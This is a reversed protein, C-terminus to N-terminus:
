FKWILRLTTRTGEPRNEAASEIATKLGIALKGPPSWFIAPGIAFVQEEETIFGFPPSVPGGDVGDKELQKLYYGAVAIRLDKVVEYEFSYNFHFVDGPEISDVGFGVFPDDNEGNFTYHIRWSTSFKPTFFLTFAYYPEITYINWGPNLIFNNNYAGVPFIFQLEFRHLYPLGFLKHNFWQIFPGVLIDGFHNPNSSLGFGNLGNTNITVVPLISEIGLHGNLVKYNSVYILQNFSILADLKEGNLIALDNGSGDKFTSAEYAQIYEFFYLGPGPPQDLVNTFGLNLPPQNYALAASAPVILSLCLMYAICRKRM